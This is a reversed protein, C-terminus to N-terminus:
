YVIDGQYEIFIQINEPKHCFIWLQQRQECKFVKDQWFQANIIMKIHTKTHTVYIITQELGQKM